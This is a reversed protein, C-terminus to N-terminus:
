FSDQYTAQQQLQSSDLVLLDLWRPAPMIIKNFSNRPMRAADDIPPRVIQGSYTYHPINKQKLQLALSPKWISLLHGSQPTVPLISRV